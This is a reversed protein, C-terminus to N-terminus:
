YGKPKAWDLYKLFYYLYNRSHPNLEGAWQRVCDDTIRSTLATMGRYPMRM